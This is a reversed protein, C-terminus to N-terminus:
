QHHLLRGSVGGAEAQQHTRPGCPGEGARAGVCGMSGRVCVVVFGEGKPCSVRVKENIAQLGLADANKVIPTILGGETAVAVSVDVTANPKVSDSKPDYFCNAEPVDRLAKAAAKIIMDNVSLNFGAEKLQARLVMLADLKCDMIAYQHPIRAKSETLRQAIIRRVQSPKTETVKGRPEPPTPLPLPTPAVPAVSRATAAPAPAPAAGTAPAATASPAAARNAAPAPAPALGLLGLVDGKTIRGGKGTGVVASLASPPVGHNAILARAAPM